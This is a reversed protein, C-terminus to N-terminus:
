FISFSKFKLTLFLLVSKSPTSAPKAVVKPESAVPKVKNNIHNLTTPTALPAVYKHEILLAALDVLGGNRDVRVDVLYFDDRRAVFRAVTVQMAEFMFDVVEQQHNENQQQQQDPKVRNLCLKLAMHKHHRFRADMPLLTAADVVQDNGYDVFFVNATALEDDLSTVVARYWNNDESFRAMCMQGLTPRTLHAEAEPSSSAYFAHMEQEFAAFTDLDAGLQAYFCHPSLIFTVVIDVEENANGTATTTAAKSNAAEDNDHSHTPSVRRKHSSDLAAQHANGIDAFALKQQVLEDAISLAKLHIDVNFIADKKSKVTATVLKNLVLKSFFGIDTTSWKAEAPRVGDLSCHVAYGAPTRYSEVLPRIYKTHVLDTTGIDVYSIFADHNNFSLIECRHWEFLKQNFVCCLTGVTLNKSSSARCIQVRM